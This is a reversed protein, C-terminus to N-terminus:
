GGFADIYDQVAEKETEKSDFWSPKTDIVDQADELTFEYGLKKAEEVIKQLNM